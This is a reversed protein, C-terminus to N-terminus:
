NSKYEACFSNNYFQNLVIVMPSESYVLLNILKRFLPICNNDFKYNNFVSEFKRTPSEKHGM